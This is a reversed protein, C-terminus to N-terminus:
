KAFTRALGATRDVVVVVVLTIGVLLVSLAAILPDTRTEVYHFMEVPLTSVRPGSLFLSLVVEDFSVLFCLAATAAIGPTMLPLTVRWFVMLPSAGLTSAAEECAIPLGSFTTSLVRVAYPLTVILHGALLGPFTGLLGLSAFVVLIAIALVISPLLLPATFLSMMFESGPVKLRVLAYAAPLGILISLTMTLFALGLSTLFADKIKPEVLLQSYWRTSWSTPPFALIAEGSFSLPLVVFVPALLFLFMIAALLALGPSARREDM